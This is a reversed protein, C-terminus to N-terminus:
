QPEAPHFCSSTLSLGLDREQLIDHRKGAAVPPVPGRCHGPSQCHTRATLLSCWRGASSLLFDKGEQWNDTHRDTGRGQLWRSAECVPQVTFHTINVLQNGQLTVAWVDARLMLDQVPFSALNQIQWCWSFCHSFDLMGYFDFKWQWIMDQDSRTSSDLLVCLLM